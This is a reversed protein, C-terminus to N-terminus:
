TAFGSLYRLWQGCGIADFGQVMRPMGAPKAIGAMGFASTLLIRVGRVVHCQTRSAPSVSAM